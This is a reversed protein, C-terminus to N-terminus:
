REKSQFAMKETLIRKEVKQRLNENYLRHFNPHKETYRWEEVMLHHNLFLWDNLEFINSAEVFDSMEAMLASAELPKKDDLFFKDNNQPNKKFDYLNKIRGFGCEKAVQEINKGKIESQPRGFAIFFGYDIKEGIDLDPAYIDLLDLVNKNKKQLLYEKQERRADFDLGKFGEIVTPIKKDKQMIKKPFLVEGEEAQVFLPSVVSAALLSVLLAKKNM